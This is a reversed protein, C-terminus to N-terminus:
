EDSDGQDDDMDEQGRDPLDVLEAGKAVSTEVPILGEDHCLKAFEQPDMMGETYMMNYRNFKSTKITEEEVASLMRLPKYSFDLDDFTQGFEQVCLIELVQMIIPRLPGRVQSEVMAVYNEIDDEGNSMGTSSTGFLKSIPMRLASAVYRMNQAQVEALGTFTIQKQEFDDEKDLAIANKYSKAWNMLELRSKTLQTGASTALQQTFGEFKYVDIKAEKLLEYVLDKTRLYLNFDEIMREMESMGWGQLVFKVLYPAAKGSMTLFRTFHIRKGYFEYFESYRNVSQAEWRAAAYFALKKIGRKLNLPQDMPQDTNIVLGAGGYLRAWTGVEAVTAEVSSWRKQLRQLDTGDMRDCSIDIGGRLADLVPEEIATQLMGHTKYMFTLLTWNITIPQYINFYALNSFSNLASQEGPGGQMLSFLSNSLEMTKSQERMNLGNKLEVNLSRHLSLQKELVKLSRPSATKM